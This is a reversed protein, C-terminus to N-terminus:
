FKEFRRTKLGTKQFYGEQANQHCNQCNAKSKVEKSKFASPPVKKHIREFLRSQSFVLPNEKQLKVSLFTPIQESSNSLLFREIQVRDEEELSADDGFHNELEGMMKEWAKSGLTYPAYAIHCSGCEKVYLKQAQSYSYKPPAKDFGLIPNSGLFLSFIVTLSLLGYFVCFLRQFVNLKVSEQTPTNKYGTLIAELADNKHLFRDIIVGCIHALVVAILANAFLEHAEKLYAMPSFYLFAFIGSHEREGYLMLGSVCVGVGLVLILVIAISSAPNHAIYSPKNQSFVAGLYEKLGRFHFDWFRSFKSGVFGWLIRFGILLLFVVGLVAHFFVSGIEFYALPLILVLGLHSLRNALTYIYSKSM